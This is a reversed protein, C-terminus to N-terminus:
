TSYALFGRVLIADGVMTDSADRSIRIVFSDDAAISDLNTITITSATLGKATSNVTTASASQATAFSKAEYSTADGPTVCALSCTWVVNGTTSGSRSEWHLTLAPNGTGYVNAIGDLYAYQTTAKQFAYGSVPFNTGAIAVLEPINAAGIDLARAAFSQYITTM